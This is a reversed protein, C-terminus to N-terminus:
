NFYVSKMGYIIGDSHIKGEQCWDKQFIIFLIFEAKWQLGTLFGEVQLLPATYGACRGKARHDSARM